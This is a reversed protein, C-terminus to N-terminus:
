KIIAAIMRRTRAVPVVPDDSSHFAWIPTGVAQDALWEAGGGCIPVAAAFLGPYRTVMDWTGFGGMSLGTIYLRNYDINFEAFIEYFMAELTLAMWTSIRPNGDGDAWSGTTPCQPALMFCPYKAQNEPRVFVLPATQGTLQRRNDTGREGAGHLFLVLPYSQKPDYDTPVFLRYPITNTGDSYWRAEFDDVTQASAPSPLGLVLLVLLLAFALQPHKMSNM